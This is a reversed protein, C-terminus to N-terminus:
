AGQGPGGLAPVAERAFDALRPARPAQWGHPVEAAVRCIGVMKRGMGDRAHHEGAAPLEADAQLLVCAMGSRRDALHARGLGIPPLVIHRSGDPDVAVTVAHTHCYRTDAAM